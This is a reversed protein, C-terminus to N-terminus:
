RADGHKAMLRAVSYIGRRECRACFLTLTPAILDSLTVDGQRPMGVVLLNPRARGVGM